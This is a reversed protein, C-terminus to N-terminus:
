TAKPARYSTFSTTVNFLCMYDKECHGCTMPVEDGDNRFGHGDWWDIDEYGCYPCAPYRLDDADSARRSKTIADKNFGM